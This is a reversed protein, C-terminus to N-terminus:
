LIPKFSYHTVSVFAKFFFSFAAILRLNICTIMNGNTAMSIVVVIRPTENTWSRYAYEWDELVLEVTFAVFLPTSSTSIRGEGEFTFAPLVKSSGAVTTLLDGSLIINGAPRQSEGKVANKIAFTTM